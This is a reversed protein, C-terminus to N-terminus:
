STKMSLNRITNYIDTALTKDDIAIAAKYDYFDPMLDSETKAFCSMANKDDNYKYHRCIKCTNKPKYCINAM